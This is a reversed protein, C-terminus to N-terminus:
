SVLIIGVNWLLIYQLLLNALGWTDVQVSSVVQCNIKCYSLSKKHASQHLAKNSLHVSWPFSTITACNIRRQRTHTVKWSIEFSISTLVTLKITLFCILLLKEYDGSNDFMSIVVFYEFSLLSVVWRCSTTLKNVEGPSLLGQWSPPPPPM